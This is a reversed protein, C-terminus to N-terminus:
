TKPMLNCTLDALQCIIADPPKRGTNPLTRRASDWHMTWHRGQMKELGLLPSRSPKPCVLNVSLLKQADCIQSTCSARRRRHSSEILHEHTKTTVTTPGCRPVCAGGIHMVGDVYGNSVRKRECNFQFWGRSCHLHHRPVLRQDVNRHMGHALEHNCGTCWAIRFKITCNQRRGRTARGWATNSYIATMEGASSSLGAHCRHTPVDLLDDTAHTCARTRIIYRLQGLPPTAAFLGYRDYSCINTAVRRARYNLTNDVGTNANLWAHSIIHSIAVGMSM